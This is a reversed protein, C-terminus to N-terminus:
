SIGALTDLSSLKSPFLLFLLREIQHKSCKILCAATTLLKGKMREKLQRSSAAAFAANRQQMVRDYYEQLQIAEEEASLLVIEYAKRRENGPFIKSARAQAMCDVTSSTFSYQRFIFWAVLLGKHWPWLNFQLPWYWHLISTLVELLVYFHKKHQERQGVKPNFYYKHDKPFALNLDFMRTHHIIPM